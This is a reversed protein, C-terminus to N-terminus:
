GSFTPSRAKWDSRSAGTRCRAARVPGAAARANGGRSAGAALAVARDFWQLSERMAFLKQSREAALDLYLLAKPWVKGRECHEALHANREHTPGRPTSSWCNRWSGICCCAAPLRRHGPVGGGAGQRPQLRLVRRRGGRAAAPAQGAVGDHAPLSGRADRRARAPDRLRLAPRAGGGRRAPARDEQPVRALRVRVSDRLDDPLPLSSADSLASEGESLSHMISLLFFPNGDSERHLRAALDPASLKPDNLQKLLAECEGPGLRPLAM